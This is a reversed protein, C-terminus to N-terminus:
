GGKIRLVTMRGRSQTHKQVPDAPYERLCIKLHASIARRSGPAARMSHKWSALSPLGATHFPRRGSPGIEMHSKMSREHCEGSSLAEGAEDRSLQCENLPRFTLTQGPVSRQTTCYLWVSSQSASFGMVNWEAFDQRKDYQHAPSTVTVRPRPKRLLFPAM